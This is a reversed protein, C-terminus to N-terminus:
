NVATRGGPLPIVKMPPPSGGYYCPDYVPNWDTPTSRCGPATPHVLCRCYGRCIRKGGILGGIGGVIVGIVGLIPVGTSEGVGAGLIAGFVGPAVTCCDVCADEDHMIQEAICVGIAIITGVGGLGRGLGPPVDPWGETLVGGIGRLVPISGFPDARGIPDSRSYHYAPEYPWYIDVTLWRGYQPEDMRARVYVRSSSDTYYGLTGVFRLPTATSTGKIEEGYPWYSMTDTKAQSSNLLAITSGLPNPVYDRRTGGRTESLVEGDVTLYKVALAM